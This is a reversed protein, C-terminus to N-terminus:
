FANVKGFIDKRDEVIEIDFIHFLDKNNKSKKKM